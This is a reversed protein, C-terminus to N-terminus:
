NLPYLDILNILICLWDYNGFLRHDVRRGELARLLSLNRSRILQDEYSSADGKTFKVGGIHSFLLM